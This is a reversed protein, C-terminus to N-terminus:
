STREKRCRRRLHDGGEPSESSAGGRVLMVGLCIYFPLLFQEAAGYRPWYWIPSAVILTLAIGISPVLPLVWSGRGVLLLFLAFFFLLWNILGIPVSWEDTPLLEHATESRLLNQPHIDRSLLDDMREADQNRPTGRWINKEYTFAEPVNVTWFGCTELEWAELYCRPNKVLMSLWHSFFGHDLPASNFEEDWKLYDVCGPRYAERYQDLPLLEAMYERDSDSMDGDYAVVRGMQNLLVGYSEAKPSVSVGAASFIPGSVVVFLIAVLASAGSALAFGSPRGKGRLWLAMLALALLVM